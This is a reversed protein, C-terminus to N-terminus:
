LEDNEDSDGGIMFNLIFAFILLDLMCYLKLNHENGYKDTFELQVFKEEEACIGYQYDYYLLVKDINDFVAEANTELLETYDFVNQSYNHKVFINYYYYYLDPCSDGYVYKFFHILHIFNINCKHLFADLGLQHKSAISTERFTLVSTINNIIQEASDQYYSENISKDNM